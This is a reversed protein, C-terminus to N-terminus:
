GDETQQPTYSLQYLTENAILLGPTRIGKGGFIYGYDVSEWGIARMSFSNELAVASFLVLSCEEDLRVRLFSFRRTQEPIAAVYGLISFPSSGGL